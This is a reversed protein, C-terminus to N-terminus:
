GLVTMRHCRAPNRNRQRQFLRGRLVPWFVMAGVMMVKIRSIFRTLGNHPSGPNVTLQELETNGDRLSGDGLIHGLTSM